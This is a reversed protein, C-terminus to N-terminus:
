LYAVCVCVGGGGSVDVVFKIQNSEAMRILVIAVDYNCTTTVKSHTVCEKMAKKTLALCYFPIRM